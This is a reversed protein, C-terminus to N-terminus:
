VKINRSATFLNLVQKEANSENSLKQFVHKGKKEENSDDQSLGLPQLVVLSDVTANKKIFPVM